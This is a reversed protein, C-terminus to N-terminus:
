KRVDQEEKNARTASKKNFNKLKNIIAARKKPDKAIHFIAPLLSIFIIMALIPLLYFDVADAPIFQGLFYGAITICFAWLFAGIINYTIFKVYHMKGIGTVIPNFTRVIPIFQALIVAKAGHKEYFAEASQLYEQKFLKSTKKRFLRRGAHKGILYGTSNGAVAALFFIAALLWINADLQGIGVLAGATFLLTDGPLFFGIMLGTEAFIIVAVGYGLVTLITTIDVGPIM